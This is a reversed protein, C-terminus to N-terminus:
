FATEVETLPKQNVLGDWVFIKITSDTTVESLDLTQGTVATTDEADISGTTGNVAILKGSTKDFAAVIATYVQATKQKNTINFSVNVSKGKIDTITNGESDTLQVNSVEALETDRYPQITIDDVYWTDCNTESDNYILGIPACVRVKYQSLVNQGTTPQWIFSVRQWDDTVEVSESAAVNEGGNNYIAVRLKLNDRTLYTKNEEDYIKEDINYHDKKGKVYASVIYKEGVTFGDGLARTVGFRDALSWRVQCGYDRHDKMEVMVAGKDTGPTNNEEASYQSNAEYLPSTFSSTFGGMDADFTENIFYDGNATFTYTANMDVYKTSSGSAYIKGFNVTYTGNKKNPILVKISNGSVTKTFEAAAGTPDTITIESDANPIKNFNVTFGEGAMLYSSGDANLTTSVFKIDEVQEIKIDDIYFVDGAKFNMNGNSNAMIIYWTDNMLKSGSITSSYEQWKNTVASGTGNVSVADRMGDLTGQNSGNLGIEWNNRLCIPMYTTGTNQAAGKVWASVKYQKSKDLGTMDTKTGLKAWIGMRSRWGSNAWSPSDKLLTIKVSGGEGTRNEEDTWEVTGATTDAWNLERFKSTVNIGDTGPATADFAEATDFTESFIATSSEEAQAVTVGAAMGATMTLATILSLVKKMM